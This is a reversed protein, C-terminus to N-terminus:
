MAMKVEKHFTRSSNTPMLLRCYPTVSHLEFTAIFYSLYWKPSLIMLLWVGFGHAGWLGSELGKSYLQHRKWLSWILPVLNLDSSSSLFVIVLLTVATDELYQSFIKHRFSADALSACTSCTTKFYIHTQWCFRLVNFPSQTLRSIYFLIIVYRHKKHLESIRNLLRDSQDPSFPMDRIYEIGVGHDLPDYDGLDAQVAYSGLM